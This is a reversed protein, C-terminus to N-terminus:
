IRTPTAARKVIRPGLTRYDFPRATEGQVSDPARADLGIVAPV